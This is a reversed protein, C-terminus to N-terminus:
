DEWPTAGPGLSDNYQVVTNLYKTGGLNQLYAEFGPIVNYPDYVPTGWGWYVVYVKPTHMVRGTSPNHNYLSGCAATARRTTAAALLTAVILCIVRQGLGTLVGAFLLTSRM